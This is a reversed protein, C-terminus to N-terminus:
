RHARKKGLKSRRTMEKQGYKARGASAAIRRASDESYGKAVLANVMRAFGGPKWAPNSRYGDSSLAVAVVAALAGLGLVVPLVGPPSASAQLPPAAPPATTTPGVPGVSPPRGGPPAAAALRSSLQLALYHQM